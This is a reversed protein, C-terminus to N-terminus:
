RSERETPAHDFVTRHAARGQEDDVYRCKCRDCVVTESPARVGETNWEIETTM